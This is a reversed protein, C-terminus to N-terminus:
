SGDVVSVRDTDWMQGCRRASFQVAHAGLKSEVWNICSRASCGSWRLSLPATYLWALRVSATECMWSSFM